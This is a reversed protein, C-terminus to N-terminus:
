ASISITNTAVLTLVIGRYLIRQNTVYVSLNEKYIFVKEFNRILYESQLTTGDMKIQKNLTGVIINYNTISYAVWDIYCDTGASALDAASLFSNDFLHTNHL